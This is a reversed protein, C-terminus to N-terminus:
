QQKQYACASVNWKQTIIHSISYQIKSPSAREHQNNSIYRSYPLINPRSVWEWCKVYINCCCCWLWIVYHNACAYNCDISSSGYCVCVIWLSISFVSSSDLCFVCVFSVVSYSSCLGMRMFVFISKHYHWIECYGTIKRMKKWQIKQQATVIHYENLIRVSHLLLLAREFFFWVWSISTSFLFLSFTVCLLQWKQLYTRVFWGNVIYINTYMSRFTLNWNPVTFVASGFSVDRFVLCEIRIEKNSWKLWM